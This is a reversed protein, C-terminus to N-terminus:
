RTEFSLAVLSPQKNVTSNVHNPIKSFHHHVSSVIFLSVQRDNKGTCQGTVPMTMTPALTPILCLAYGTSSGENCLFFGLDVVLQLAASGSWCGPRRGGPGQTGRGWWAALSLEWFGNYAWNQFVPDLKTENAKAQVGSLNNM